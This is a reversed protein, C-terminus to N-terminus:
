NGPGQPTLLSINGQPFHRIACCYTGKPKPHTLFPTNGISNKPKSSGPLIPICALQPVCEKITYRLSRIFFAVTAAFRRLHPTHSPNTPPYLLLSFRSAFAFNNIKSTKSSIDCFYNTMFHFDLNM